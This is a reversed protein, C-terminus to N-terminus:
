NNDPDREARVVMMFVQACLILTPVAIIASEIMTARTSLHFLGATCFVVAAAACFIQSAIFTFGGFIRLILDFTFKAPTGAQTIIQTTM